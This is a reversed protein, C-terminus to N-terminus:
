TKILRQRGVAVAKCDGLPEGGRVAAVRLPLAIESDAVDFQRPGIFPLAPDGIGQLLEGQPSVDPSCKHGDSRTIRLPFSVQGPELLLNETELAFRARM